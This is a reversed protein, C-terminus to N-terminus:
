RERDADLDRRSTETPIADQAEAEAPTTQTSGGAIASVPDPKITQTFRREANREKISQEHQRDGCRRCYHRTDGDELMAPTPGHWEHEGPTRVVRGGASRYCSVM